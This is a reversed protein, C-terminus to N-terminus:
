RVPRMARWDHQPSERDIPFPPDMTVVDGQQLASVLPGFDTGNLTTITVARPACHLGDVYSVASEFTNTIAAPQGNLKIVFMANEESELRLRIHDALDHPAKSQIFENRFWVQFREAEDYETSCRECRQLHRFGAATESPSLERDLLAHLVALSCREM